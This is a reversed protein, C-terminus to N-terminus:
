AVGPGVDAPIRDSSANYVFDGTGDVNLYALYGNTTVYVVEPDGDLDVDASAVGTKSAGGSSILATKTGDSSLLAVNGSGDVFPMRAIGDGDFDEPAGVAKSASGVSYGNTGQLTGDDDIYRVTQSTGLFVLETRDDGDFDATGAVSSAESMSSATSLNEPTGGPNLRYLHKDDNDVYFVSEASGQFTGVGIGEDVVNTQITWPDDTDNVLRLNGADDVYPIETRNDDDFDLRTPGVMNVGTVGYGVPDRGPHVTRLPGGDTFTLTPLPPPNVGFVTGRPSVEPALTANGVYGLTATRYRTEITANFLAPVQHPPPQVVQPNFDNGDVTGDVVFNYKGEIAGPNDFEIVFREDLAPLAPISCDTGPVEGATFDVTLTERGTDVCEGDDVVNSRWNLAVNDATTNEYFTMLYFQGDLLTNDTKFEIHFADGEGSDGHLSDASANVMGRRVGTVDSAPRWNVNPPNDDDGDTFNRASDQYIQTGNTADVLRVGGLSRRAASSNSLTGAWSATDTALSRYLNGGDEYDYYNAYFLAGGVGEIADDRVSLATSADATDDRAAQAGTFAASNLLVGLAIFVLALAVGGVLIM